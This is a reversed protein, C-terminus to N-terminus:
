LTGIETVRSAWAAVYQRWDGSAVIDQFTTTAPLVYAQADPYGPVEIHTRRYFRPHGELRDLRALTADDVDYVEGLTATDGAAIIGPYVGMSVLTFRPVTVAVGLFIARTADTTADLFDHNSMGRMLSGYVFITASM